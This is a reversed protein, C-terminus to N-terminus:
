KLWDTVSNWAEKKELGLKWFAIGAMKEKDVLTLKAALSKEEELWIRMKDKGDKWEAYYQGSEEDWGKKAKNESVLRLGGEMGLAKTKLRGDKTERWIRTYFPLGVIIKNAPVNKATNEISSKVWNLSSVSGAEVSGSYHEDYAMVCIYDAVIGQEKLNYFANFDLPIYNDISLVKNRSRMEISLERLFQVYGEAYSAKVKEFDINIGDLNYTEIFYVINNILNTRSSTSTLLKKFDVDKNFDSILPWVDININHLKNVYDKSAFTTLEGDSDAVSFWTPSVVNVGEAKALATGWGANAAESTVQHWGLVVPESRTISTYSENEKDRDFTYKKTETGDIDLCDAEIYGTVGDETFVRIFGATTNDILYVKEGSSLKKLIIDKNSGGERLETDKRVECYKYEENNNEFIIVRDPDEFVDIKIDHRKKVFDALVFINGSEEIFNPIEDTKSVGNVEYEKEGAKYIFKEIGTTYVIVDDMVDYYIRPMMKEAVAYPLYVKKDRILANENSKVIDVILRAEGEPLKYYDTLSIETKNSTSINFVKGVIIILVSIVAIVILPIIVTIPIIKKKM